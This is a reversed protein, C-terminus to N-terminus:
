PGSVSNGLERQEEYEAIERKHDDRCQQRLWSTRLETCRALQVTLRELEAQGRARAQLLAASPQRAAVQVRKARPLARASTVAADAAALREAEGASLVPASLARVQERADQEVAPAPKPAPPAPAGVLTSEPARPTSPRGRAPSRPDSVRLTLTLMVAVALALLGAVAWAKSRARPRMTKSATRSDLPAEWGGPPADVQSETAALDFALLEPASSSMEARMGAQTSFPELELILQKMSPVRADRDKELAWLILRSLTSPLEPRLQDPARPPGELMKCCLEGLSAGEYPRQRTLAEYLVVGFSYVDARGDIDKLGALQEYSMYFPTGIPVGTSTLASLEAEATLKSIGFDLIKTVPLPTDAERALFINDPKIDRHIVGEAHAAAVGRMGPLLLAIVAHLPLERRALADKLTEGELYEMVLFVTQQDSGVDFVDVINPHRVRASAQAERLMREMASADHQRAPHLLKLAVRKKTGTHEAEYVSGMGGRALLRLIRYKGRELEHGPELQM